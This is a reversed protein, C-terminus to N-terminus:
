SITNLFQCLKHLVQFLEVCKPQLNHQRVCCALILIGGLQELADTIFVLVGSNSCNLPPVEVLGLTPSTLDDDKNKGDNNGDNFHKIMM